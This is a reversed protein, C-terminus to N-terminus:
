KGIAGDDALYNYKPNPREWEGYRYTLYHEYKEPIRYEKGYFPFSITKNLLYEPITIRNSKVVSKELCYDTVFKPTIYSITRLLKSLISKLRYRSYGKKYIINRSLSMYLSHAVESGEVKGLVAWYYDSDKHYFKVGLDLVGTQDFIDIEDSSATVNYGLKYMEHCITYILKQQNICDVVALDIDNDWPIFSHDRVAGLLTGTDLFYNCNASELLNTIKDLADLWIEDKKTM